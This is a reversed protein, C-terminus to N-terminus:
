EQMKDAKRWDSGRERSISVIHKESIYRGIHRHPTVVWFLMTMWVVMLVEFRVIGIYCIHAKSTSVTADKM